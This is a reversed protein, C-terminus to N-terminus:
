DTGAAITDSDLPEYRLSLQDALSLPAAAPTIGFSQLITEALTSLTTTESIALTAVQTGFREEIAHRLEVGMLSDVGIDSLRTQPQIRAAPLRLVEGILEALVGQVTATAEEPTQQELLERLGGGAEGGGVRVRLVPIESFRASNLGRLDQRAADWQIALPALTAEGGALLVGLM